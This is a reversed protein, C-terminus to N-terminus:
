TKNVLDRYKQSLDKEQVKVPLFGAHHMVRHHDAGIFQTLLKEAPLNCFLVQKTSQDIILVGEHMAVLLKVNEKNTSDLSGELEKVYIVGTGMLSFVIMILIAVTFTYAVQFAGVSELYIWSYGLNTYALYIFPQIILIIPQDCYFFVNYACMVFCFNFPTKYPQAEPNPLLRPLIIKLVYIYIYACALKRYKYCLIDVLMAAGTVVWICIKIFPMIPAMM